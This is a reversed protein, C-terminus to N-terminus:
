KIFSLIDRLFANPTSYTRYDGRFLSMVVACLRALSRRKGCVVRSLWELKHQASDTSLPKPLEAIRITVATWIRLERERPAIPHRWIGLWNYVANDSGIGIVNRHHQRYRYLVQPTAAIGGNLSCWIALWYDHPMECPLPLAAQAATRRIAAAAGNVYNRKLLREFACNKFDQIMRNDLGYSTLVTPRNLSEGCRDILAGDSFVMDVGSENFLELTAEVKNPQWIDDQDCLFIIDASANEIALMFNQAYGLNQANIHLAFGQRDDENQQDIFRLIRTVTADSSQDDYISIKNVKCTQKLISQLQEVIYDEGNFTCVIVETTRHM